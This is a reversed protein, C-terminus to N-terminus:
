GSAQSHVVVMMVVLAGSSSPRIWSLIGITIPGSRHASHSSGPLLSVPSTHPRSAGATEPSSIEYGTEVATLETRLLPGRSISGASGSGPSGGAREALNGLASVPPAEPLLGSVSNQVRQFVPSPLPGMSTSGAGHPSSTVIPHIGDDRARAQFLDPVLEVSRNRHTLSGARLTRGVRARAEGLGLPRRGHQGRGPLLAGLHEARQPADLLATVPYAGVAAGLYRFPPHFGPRVRGAAYGALPLPVPEPASAPSTVQGPAPIFRM